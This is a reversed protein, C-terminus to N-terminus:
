FPVEDGESTTTTRRGGGSPQRDDRGGLMMAYDITMKIKSRKQGTTKDTWNEQAIKGELLYAAGKRADTLREALKGFAVADLFCPENVWENGQQKRNNFCVGLDAVAMGGQTYRIEADRTLHGCIVLKCYNPM